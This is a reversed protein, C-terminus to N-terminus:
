THAKDGAQLEESCSHASASKFRGKYGARHGARLLCIQLLHWVERTRRSYRFRFVGSDSVLVNMKPKDSCCEWKNRGGFGGKIQRIECVKQSGFYLNHDKLPLLDFRRKILELPNIFESCTM